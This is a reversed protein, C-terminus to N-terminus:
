KPLNYSVSIDNDESKFTWVRLWEGTPANFDIYGGYDYVTRYNNSLLYECYKSIIDPAEAESSSTIKYSMIRHDYPLGENTFEESLIMEPFINEVSLLNSEPYYKYNSQVNQTATDVPPEIVVDDVTPTNILIQQATVTTDTAVQESVIKTVPTMKDFSSMPWCVPDPFGILYDGSIESLKVTHGYGLGDNEYFDYIGLFHHLESGFRKEQGHWTEGRTYYLDYSGFPVSELVTEGPHIFISLINEHTYEDQLLIYCYQSGPPVSIELPAGYAHWGLGLWEGFSKSSRLDINDSIFNVTGNYPIYPLMPVAKPETFSTVDNMSLAISADEDSSAYASIASFHAIIMVTPIQSIICIVISIIASKILKLRLNSAAVGYKNDDKTGRMVILVILLLYNVIPIFLVFFLWIPLGCDRLRGITLCLMFVCLFLVIPIFVPVLTPMLAHEILGAEAAKIDVVVNDPLAALRVFWILFLLAVNLPLIFINYQSRPIRRSKFIDLLIAGFSISSKSKDQSDLTSPLPRPQLVSQTSSQTDIASEDNLYHLWADTSLEATSKNGIHHKGNPPLSPSLNGKVITVIKSRKPVCMIFIIGAFVVTLGILELVLTKWIVVANIVDDPLPELSVNRRSGRATDRWANTKTLSLKLVPSTSLESFYHEGTM